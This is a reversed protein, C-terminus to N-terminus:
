SALKNLAASLRSFDFDNKDKLADIEEQVRQLGSKIRELEVAPNKDFLHGLMLKQAKQKLQEFDMIFTQVEQQEAELEQKKKYAELYRIYAENLTLNSNESEIEKVDLSEKLINFFFFNNIGRNCAYNYYELIAQQCDSSAVEYFFSKFYNIKQQFLTGLFLKETEGLDKRLADFSGEKELEDHPTDKQRKPAREEQENTWSDVVPEAEAETDEDEIQHRRKAKKRTKETAQSKEASDEVEKMSSHSRIPNKQEDSIPLPQIINTYSMGLNAARFNVYDKIIQATLKDPYGDRSKIYKLKKLSKIIENGLNLYFTSPNSQKNRYNLSELDKDDSLSGKILNVRKMLRGSVRSLVENAMNRDWKKTHQLCYLLTGYLTMVVNISRNRPLCGDLSDIIFLFRITSELKNLTIQGQSYDICFLSITRAAANNLCEEMSSSTVADLIIPSNDSFINDEAKDILINNARVIYTDEEQPQLVIKLNNESLQALSSLPQFSDKKDAPKEMAHSSSLWSALFIFLIKIMQLSKLIKFLYKLILKKIDLFYSDVKLKELRIINAIM